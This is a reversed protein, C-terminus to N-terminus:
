RAREGAAARDVIARLRRAAATPDPALSLASIVAVGDAGAAVVEGANTEDIGAIAGVPLRPARARILALIARLGGLGIPPDPNMKSATAFVGGICVYDLVDLPAAAAQAPTKVSLGIVARPGLLRRADEPAMDEQGVHVGDAGAALAVDVRDNVILPVGLPKLTAALARAGAVLRRTEGLKDRLQVLTAGGAAVRGALVALDAGGAREPDVIAYLRLDVM